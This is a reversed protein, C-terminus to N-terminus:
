DNLYPTLLLIKRGGMVYVTTSSAESSSSAFDWILAAGELALAKPLKEKVFWMSWTLDTMTFLSLVFFMRIGGPSAKMLPLEKNIFPNEMCHFVNRYKVLQLPIQSFVSCQSCHFVGLMSWFCWWAWLLFSPKIRIWKLLIDHTHWLCVLAGWPNTPTFLSCFKCVTPSFESDTEQSLVMKRTWQPSSWSLWPYHCM